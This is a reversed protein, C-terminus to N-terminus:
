CQYNYDCIKVDSWELGENGGSAKAFFASTSLPQWFGLSSYFLSAAFELAPCDM